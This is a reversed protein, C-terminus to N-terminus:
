QHSKSEQGAVRIRTRRRGNNAEKKQNHCERCLLTRDPQRFPVIYGFPKEPTIALGCGECYDVPGAVIYWNGDPKRPPLPVFAECRDSCFRRGASGIPYTVGCTDCPRFPIKPGGLMDIVLFTGKLGGNIPEKKANLSVGAVGRAPPRSLGYIKRYFSSCANGCFRRSKPTEKGDIWRPIRKACALCARHEYTM